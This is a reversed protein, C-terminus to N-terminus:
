QKFMVQEFDRLINFGTNKKLKQIDEELINLICTSESTKSFAQGCMSHGVLTVLNKIYGTNITPFLNGMIHTAGDYSDLVAENLSEFNHGVGVVGIAKKDSMPENGIVVINRLVDRPKLLDVKITVKASAELAVGGLEGYGQAAHADGLFLKAGEVEVPIYVYCGRTIFPIDLNGGTRGAHGTKIEGNEPATGIIGLMPKYNLYMGNLLKIKDTLMDCHALIPARDVFRYVDIPSIGASKSLAQAALDIVICSIYVRLVDGPKAGNIEIPGTLPHHHKNGYKGNILNMLESIDKFHEGYANVTEIELTDGSDVKAISELDNDLKISYNSSIHRYM